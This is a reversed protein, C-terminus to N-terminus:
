ALSTSITVLIRAEPLPAVVLGRTHACPLGPYYADCEGAANRIEELLVEAAARAGHLMAVVMVM